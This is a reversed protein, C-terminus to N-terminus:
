AIAAGMVLGLLILSPRGASADALKAVAFGAAMLLGL